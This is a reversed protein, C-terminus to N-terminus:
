NYINQLSATQTWDKVLAVKHSSKGYQTEKKFILIKINKAWFNLLSVKLKLITEGM